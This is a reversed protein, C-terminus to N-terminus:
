DFDPPPVANVTQIEICGPRRSTRAAIRAAVVDVGGLDDVKPQLPAAQERISESDEARKSEILLRGGNHNKTQSDATSL